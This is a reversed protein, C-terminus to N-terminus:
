ARGQSKLIAMAVNARTELAKLLHRKGEWTAEADMGETATEVEAIANRAAVSGKATLFSSAHAKERERKATFWAMAADEVQNQFAALDDDLAELRSQVAAPNSLTM